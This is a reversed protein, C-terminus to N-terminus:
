LHWLTTQRIQYGIKYWQGQLPIFAWLVPSGQHIYCALSLWLITYFTTFYICLCIYASYMFQVDIFLSSIQRMAAPIGPFPYTTVYCHLWVTPYLIISQYGPPLFNRCFQEIDLPYPSLLLQTKASKRFIRFNLIAVLKCFKALLWCLM